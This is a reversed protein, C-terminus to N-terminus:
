DLGAARRAEHETNFWALRTLLGAEVTLVHWEPKELVAGSGRGVGRFTLTALVKDGVATLDSVDHKADEFAERFAGLV